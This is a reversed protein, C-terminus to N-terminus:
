GPYPKRESFASKASRTSFDPKAKIPGVAADIRKIPSLTEALRAMILAPTGQTGPDSPASVSLGFSIIAVAFFTPYGTMMLAAPPPPPRPIRTTCVSAARILATLM